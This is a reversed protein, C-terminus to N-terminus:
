SKVGVVIEVPVWMNRTEAASITFGNAELARKVYIPRCDVMNPFHKHTWEYIRLAM